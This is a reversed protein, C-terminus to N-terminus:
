LINLVMFLYFSMIQVNILYCDSLFAVTFNYSIQLGLNMLIWSKSIAVM